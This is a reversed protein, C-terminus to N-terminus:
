AVRSSWLYIASTAFLCWREHRSRGEEVKKAPKRGTAEGIANGVMSQQEDGGSVDSM